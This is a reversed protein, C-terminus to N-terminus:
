FGLFCEAKNHKHIVRKINKRYREFYDVIASCIASKSM